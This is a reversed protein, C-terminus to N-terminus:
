RLKQGEVRCRHDVDVEALEDFKETRRFFIPFVGRVATLAFRGSEMRCFSLPTCPDQSRPRGARGEKSGAGGKGKVAPFTLSLALPRSARPGQRAAQRPLGAPNISLIPSSGAM